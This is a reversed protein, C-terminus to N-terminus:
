AAGGRGRLIYGTGTLMLQLGVRKFADTLDRILLDFDRHCEEATKTPWLETMLWSRGIPKGLRSAFVLAASAQRATVDVQKKGYHIREAGKVFSISIGNETIQLPRSVAAAAAPPTSKAHSHVGTPKGFPKEPWPDPLTIEITQKDIRKVTCAAQVRPVAFSQHRGGNIVLVGHGRGIVRLQSSSDDRAILRAKGADTGTGILVRHRQGVTLNLREALDPSFAFVIRLKERQSGNVSATADPRSKNASTQTEEFAM